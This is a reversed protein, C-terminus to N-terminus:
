ASEAPVFVEIARRLLRFRAPTEAIIEGDANIPKPKRTRVDFSQGSMSRIERWAGHDGIRLAKLMLALRWARAFELSYLDLRGDDIAATREIVNGGGYFRGNGVAVQLSLTRVRGAGSEITVRFPKARGLARVAAVAYGLRGFRRKLDSTLEEALDVSLGLSAVNFFLEDNVQGLDIRRTRGEAVIRIAADLEPPVGLTRALDNATGTPLVGLPKQAAHVGKAAANLTGDGGAVLIMEADGARAAIAPSLEDRSDASLPIPTIGVSRLTEVAHDRADQGTRSKANVILLARRSM